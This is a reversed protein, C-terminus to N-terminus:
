VLFLRLLSISIGFIYSSVYLDAKWFHLIISCNRQSARINEKHKTSLTITHCVWQLNNSIWDKSLKQAWNLGLLMVESLTFEMEASSVAVSTSLKRSYNLRTNEFSIVIWNSEKTKKVANWDNRLEKWRYKNLLPGIWMLPVHPASMNDFIVLCFNWCKSCCDSMWFAKFVM